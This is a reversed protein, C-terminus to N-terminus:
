KAKNQIEKNVMDTTINIAAAMTATIATGACKDRHIAATYIYFSFPFETINFM